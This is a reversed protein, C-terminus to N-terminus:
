KIGQFNFTHYLYWTSFFTPYKKELHDITTQLLPMLMSRSVEIKIHLQVIQLFFFSLYKFIVQRFFLFDEYVRISYLHFCQSLLLFLENNDINDNTM